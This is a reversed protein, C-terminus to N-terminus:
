VNNNKKKESKNSMMIKIQIYTVHFTVSIYSIKLSGHYFIEHLSKHAMRNELIVGTKGVTNPNVCKVDLTFNLLCIQM